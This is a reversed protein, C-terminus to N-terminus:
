APIRLLLSFCSDVLSSFHRYLYSHLLQQLGANMEAVLRATPVGFHLFVNEPLAVSNVDNVQLLGQLHETFGAAEDAIKGCLPLGDQKDAGLALGLFRDGLFGFLAAGIEHVM